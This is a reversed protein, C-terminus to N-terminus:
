PGRLVVPRFLEGRQGLPAPEGVTFGLRKVWSLASRHDKHIAQVLMPYAERIERVIAKSARWFTLPYKCVADTTLLWPVAVEGMAVGFMGLPDGGVFATRAFESIALSARLAEEPLYRGSAWVEDRDEKRMRAAILPVHDARAVVLKVLPGRSPVNGENGLTAPNSDRVHQPRVPQGATDPGSSDREEARMEESM